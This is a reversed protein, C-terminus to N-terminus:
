NPGAGSENHNDRKQLVVVLAMRLISALGRFQRFRLPVCCFNFPEEIPVPSVHMGINERLETWLRFADQVFVSSSGQISSGNGLM